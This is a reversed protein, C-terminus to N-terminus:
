GHALCSPLVMKGRFLQMLTPAIAQGQGRIKNYIFFLPCPCAAAGVDILAVKETCFPILQQYLM